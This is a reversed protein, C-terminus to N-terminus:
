DHRWKYWYSKQKSSLKSGLEDWEGHSSVVYNGEKWERIKHIRRNQYWIIEMGHLENKVYQKEHYINGDDRFHREVGEKKGDVYNSECVIRGNPNYTTCTGHFECLSLGKTCDYRKLSISQLLYSKSDSFVSKNYQDYIYSNKEKLVVHTLDGQDDYNKCFVSEGDVIKCTHIVKGLLNKKTSVYEKSEGSKEQEIPHSVNSVFNYGTM